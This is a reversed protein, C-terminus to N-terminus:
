DADVIQGGLDVYLVAPTVVGPVWVAAGVLIQVVMSEVLGVGGVGGLSGAVIGLFLSLAMSAAVIVLFVLLLRGLTAWFRGRILRAACRLSPEAPGACAVTYGLMLVPIMWLSGVLWALVAPVLLLPHVAGLLGVLVVGVALIATGQVGVGALRLVRGLAVSFAGAVTQARGTIEALTLRTIVVTALAGAIWSALLGLILPIFNSFAWDLELSEFYAENERDTYEALRMIRDAVASLKGVLVSDLSIVALVVAATQGVISTAVAALCGRWRKAIVKFVTSLLKMPSRMTDSGADPAGGAVGVRPARHDTWSAGDWYRYQSEDEPDTYWDAPPLASM